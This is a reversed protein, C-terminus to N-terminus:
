WRRARSDGGVVNPSSTNSHQVSTPASSPTTVTKRTVSIGQTHRELAHYNVAKPSAPLDFCSVGNLRRRLSDSSRGYRRPDEGLGIYGGGELQAYERRLAYAEEDDPKIHTGNASQDTITFRGRKYEVRAHKRSTLAGSRHITNDDARGM